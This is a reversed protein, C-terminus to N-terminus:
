GTPPSYSLLTPSKQILKVTYARSYFASFNLQSAKYITLHFKPYCYNGAPSRRQNRRRNANNNCRAIVALWCRRRIHWDRRRGCLHADLRHLPLRLQHLPDIDCQHRDDDRYHSDVNAITSDKSFNAADLRRCNQLPNTPFNYSNSSLM